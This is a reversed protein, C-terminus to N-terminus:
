HAVRKESIRYLTCEKIILLIYISTKKNYLKEFKKRSLNKKFSYLIPKKPTRLHENGEVVL